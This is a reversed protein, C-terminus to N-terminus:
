NHFTQQANSYISIFDTTTNINLIADRIISKVEFVNKEIYTMYDLCNSSEALQSGMDLLYSVNISRGGISELSDYLLRKQCGSEEPSHVVLYEVPSLLHEM